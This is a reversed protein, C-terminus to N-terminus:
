AITGASHRQHHWTDMQLSNMAACAPYIRQAPRPKLARGAARNQRRGAEAVYTGRQNVSSILSRGHIRAGTVM